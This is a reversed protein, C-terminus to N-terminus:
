SPPYLRATLELIEEIFRRASARNPQVAVERGAETALTTLVLVLTDSLPRAHDSLMASNTSM